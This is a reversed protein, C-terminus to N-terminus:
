KRETSRVKGSGSRSSSRSRHMWAVGGEYVLRALMTATVTKTVPGIEFAAIRNEVCVVSDNQRRAGVFSTSDSVILAISVESGNPFHQM